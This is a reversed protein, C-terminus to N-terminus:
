DAPEATAGPSGYAEDRDPLRSPPPALFGNSLSYRVLFAVSRGEIDTDGPGAPGVRATRHAALTAARGFGSGEPFESEIQCDRLDGGAEVECRIAALGAEYRARDPFRVEPSQVWVLGAFDEDAPAPEDNGPDLTRGCASFVRAISNRSPPLDVAYRRTRTGDPVDLSLRGGGSLHTAVSRPWVAFATTSDRGSVWKSEAEVHDGLQLKMVRQGSGAPLGSLVVSLHDEMCRVAVGFNEFSVAAIALDRAADDGYDWDDGAAQTAAPGVATLGSLVIGLTLQIGNM